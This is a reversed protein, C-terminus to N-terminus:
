RTIKRYARYGARALKYAVPNSRLRNAAAKAIATHGYASPPGYAALENLAEQYAYELETFYKVDEGEFSEISALSAITSDTPL